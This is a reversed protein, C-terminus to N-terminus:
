ASTTCDDHRRLFDLVRTTTHEAHQFLVGHGAAPITEIEVDLLLRRTRQTVAAPDYLTTDAGMLLLTPATIRALEDDSLVSAAPLRQRFGRMAALLLEVQQDTLEVDGNMWQNFRRLAKPKDRAIVVRVGRLVLAAIRRPPVRTFAGAPEILVLSAVRDRRDTLGAYMGAIWGGESYGLLHVHDVGLRDLVEDLWAVLQSGSTIPLAQDSRGAAGITDPTYVTRQASLAAMVPYWGASSGATPHLMVLPTAPADGSRRVRTIGATTAVDIEQHSVPWHQDVTRDYLELYRHRAEPTRWSSTRSV